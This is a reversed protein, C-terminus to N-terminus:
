GPQRRQRAVAVDDHGITLRCAVRRQERRQRIQLGEHAAGDVDAVDVQARGIPVADEDRLGASTEDGRDGFPDDAHHDIQAAVDTRRDALVAGAHLCRSGHTALQPAGRDADDTIALDAAIEALQREGEADVDHHVIGMRSDICSPKATESEVVQERRRIEDDAQRGRGVRRLVQDVAPRQRLHLRAGVEDVGRAAVQDVFGGQDGREVGTSEGAAREVDPARRVLHRRRM